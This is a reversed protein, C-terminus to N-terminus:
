GCYCHRTVVNLHEVVLAMRHGGTLEAIDNDFQWQWGAAQWGQPIGFRAKAFRIQFFKGTVVFGGVCTIDIFVAIQENHRAGVVDNIHGAM